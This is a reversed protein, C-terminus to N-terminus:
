EPHKAEKRVRDRLTALYNKQQARGYNDLTYRSIQMLSKQAQPSLIYGPM